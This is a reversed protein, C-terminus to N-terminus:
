VFIGEGVVLLTKRWTREDLSSCSTVVTSSEYYIDVMAMALRMEEM